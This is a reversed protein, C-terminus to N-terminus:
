SSQQRRNLIDKIAMGWEVDEVGDRGGELEEHCGRFSRCTCVFFLEQTNYYECVKMLLTYYM